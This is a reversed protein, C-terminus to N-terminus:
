VLAAKRELLMFFRSLQLMSYYTLLLTVVLWQQIAFM